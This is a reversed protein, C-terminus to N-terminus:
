PREAVRVRRGFVREFFAAKKPLVALEATLEGAADLTLVVQGERADAEVRRVLRGHSRDLADALRLIAALKEVRQRDELPLAAFSEHRLTPESKRHYRAINAAALIEPRTLGPLDAAAIMRLSHKHHGQYAVSMGLDHLLAAALLVRRAAGALGHLDALQDFLALALAAVQTAHAEEFGTARGFRLAAEAIEDGRWARRPPPPETPRHPPGGSPQKTKM